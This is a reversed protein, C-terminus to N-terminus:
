ISAKITEICEVATSLALEPSSQSVCRCAAICPVDIYAIFGDDTGRYYVEIKLGKYKQCGLYNPNNPNDSRDLM